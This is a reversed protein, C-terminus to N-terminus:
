ENPRKYLSMLAEACKIGDVAASVIGGAYGAGEGAPFLGTFGQAQCDDNRPLRVPASTRTEVGTLVADPMAFGKLKRDFDSLGAKLADTIVPPLCAHLDSPVAYPRYSPTVRGFQSTAKSDFFDRLTQAPAGGGGTLAFAARELRQAFAIGGLPGSEFDSPSVGVVVASNSNEMDRAYWSMGNVAIGDPETSSNIVEGGPCMCFTYVGRGRYSSTLRYEAAGLMPHGLAAGYQAKDIFARPHEIRVGAAFPKPLITIGKQLLMRYTDRASHGICLVVARTEVSHSMGNKVYAIGSMSDGESFIDTLRSEFSVEGGLSVIKDIIGSVATRIHETGTHPKADTLISDPAGHDALTQLVYDSRPDKIRTTLKGDSFAGAGGAGFCVNSEPNLIGTDRLRAVDTSRSEIDRGRELMLPKYGHKALTLAAFLGCPGTGVVVIRGAPRSGYVIDPEHYSHAAGHVSELTKQRKADHLDILVTLVLRLQARRADVSQRKVRLAAIDSVPIALLDAAAQRLESEHAELPVGLGSLIISM